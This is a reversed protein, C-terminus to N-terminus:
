RGLKFQSLSQLIAQVCESTLHACVSTSDLCVGLFSINRSPSLTSKAWNVNLGLSHLHQLLLRQTPMVSGRITSTVALRQPLEIHTRRETESPRASCRQVEYIHSSGSVTRLAPSQISISNGRGRIEFVDQPATCNPYPLVCGESRDVCVLRTPTYTISNTESYDNQIPAKYTRSKFTESVPNASTRRREKPCSFLPQLVRKTSSLKACDRDCKEHNSQTNQSTVSARRQILGHFVSCRQFPTAPSCILDYLWTRDNKAGIRFHGNPSAVRRRLPVSPVKTQEGYSIIRRKGCPLPQAYHTHKSSSFTEKKLIYSCRTCKCHTSYEKNCKYQM